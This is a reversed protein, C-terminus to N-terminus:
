CTKRMVGTGTGTGRVARAGESELECWCRSTEGLCAGAGARGVLVYM